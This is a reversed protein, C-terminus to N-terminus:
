STPLTDTKKMIAAIIASIILGVVITVILAILSIWPPTMFKSTIALTREIEEDNMGRNEMSERAKELGIAISSNDIFALYIYTFVASVAGTILSIVAGIRFGEGFTMTGRASKRFEQSAKVIGAIIILYVLWGLARSTSLGAINIILSYIVVALATIIGYRLAVPGTKPREGPGVTHVDITQNEM